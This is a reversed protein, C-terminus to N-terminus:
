QCSDCGLEDMPDTPVEYDGITETATPVNQAEHPNGPRM